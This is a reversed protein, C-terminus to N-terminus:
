LVILLEFVAPNSALFLFRRMFEYKRIKGGQYIANFIPARRLGLQCHIILIFGIHYHGYKCPGDIMELGGAAEDRM